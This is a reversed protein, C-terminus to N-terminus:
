HATSHGASPPWGRQSRTFEEPNPEKAIVSQVADRIEDETM